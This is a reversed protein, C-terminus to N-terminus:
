EKQERKDRNDTRRNDETKRGGEGERWVFLVINMSKM